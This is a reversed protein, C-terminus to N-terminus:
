KKSKKKIQKIERDHGDLRSKIERIESIVDKFGLEMKHELKTIKFFLWVFGAFVPGNTLLFQFFTNM